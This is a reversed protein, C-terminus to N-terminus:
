ATGDFYGFSSNKSCVAGGEVDGVRGPIRSNARNEHPITTLKRGEKKWCTKKNTEELRSINM